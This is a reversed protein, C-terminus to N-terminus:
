WRKPRSHVQDIRCRAYSCVLTLSSVMIMMVLSVIRIIVFLRFHSSSILAQGHRQWRHDWDLQVCLIFVVVSLALVSQCWSHHEEPVLGFGVIDALFWTLHHCEVCEVSSFFTFRLTWSCSHWTTRPWTHIPRRPTSLGSGSAKPALSQLFRIHDFFSPVRHVPGCCQKLILCGFHEGVTSGVDFGRQSNALQNLVFSKGTRYLGAISIVGVNGEIKNLAKIAEENIVFRCVPWLDCITMMRDCNCMWGLSLGALSVIVFLSKPEIRWSDGFIISACRCM